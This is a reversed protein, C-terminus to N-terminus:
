YFNEIYLLKTFLLKKFSRLSVSCVDHQFKCNFLREQGGCLNILTSVPTPKTLATLAGRLLCLNSEVFSETYFVQQDTKDQIGFIRKGLQKDFIHILFESPLDYDSTLDGISILGDCQLRENIEESITNIFTQNILQGNIIHVLPDSKEIEAAKAAIVNYDVSLIKALEVFNIRGGSVYLEDKIEKVLHEPTIYEKGDTTFVVELLNQALLKNIIEICNIESM